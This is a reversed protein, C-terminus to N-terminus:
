GESIKAKSGRTVRVTCAARPRPRSCRRAKDRRPPRMIGEARRTRVSSVARGQGHARVLNPLPGSIVGSSDPLLLGNACQARWLCAQEVARRKHRGCLGPARTRPTESPPTALNSSPRIGPPAAQPSGGRRRGSFIREGRALRILALRDRIHYPLTGAAILNAVFFVPSACRIGSERCCRQGSEHHGRRRAIHQGSRPRTSPTAPRRGVACSHPVSLTHETLSM